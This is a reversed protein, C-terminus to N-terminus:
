HQCQIRAQHSFVHFTFSPSRPCRSSVSAQVLEPPCIYVYGSIEINLFPCSTTQSQSQPCHVQSRVTKLHPGARCGNEILQQRRLLMPAERALCCYSDTQKQTFPATVDLRNTVTCHNSFCSFNAFSVSSLSNLM